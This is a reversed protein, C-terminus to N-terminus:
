RQARYSNVTVRVSARPPPVLNCGVYFTKTFRSTGPSLTKHDSHSTGDIHISVEVAMRAANSNHINYQVAQEWWRSYGQQCTHVTQVPNGSWVEGVKPPILDDANVTAAWLFLVVILTRRSRKRTGLM